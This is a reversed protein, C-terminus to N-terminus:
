GHILESWATKVQERLEDLSGSNEIVRTVRPHDFRPQASLRAQAAQASLGRMVTLRRLAVRSSCRVVWIDHVLALLDSQLLRVADVVVIGERGRKSEIRERILRAVAPHVISELKRLEAHDNFVITGLKPRDVSGDASIVGSGFTKGVKRTTETDSAMLQHVVKDADIRDLAGLEGLIDGVTTKGSGIPGTLGLVRPTEKASDAGM